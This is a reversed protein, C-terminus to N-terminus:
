VDFPSQWTRDEQVESDQGKAEVFSKKEFYSGSHKVVLLGIGTCCSELCIVELKM